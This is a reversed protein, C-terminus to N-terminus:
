ICNDESRIHGQGDLLYPLQERHEFSFWRYIVVEHGLAEEILICAGKDISTNFSITDFILGYVKDPIKWDDLAKLCAVAQDVGTDTGTKPVALLKEVGKGTVLLEM